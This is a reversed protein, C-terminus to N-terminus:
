GAKKMGRRAKWRSWAHDAYAWAILVLAIAAVVALAGLMEAVPRWFWMWFSNM